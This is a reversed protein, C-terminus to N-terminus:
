IKFQITTLAGKGPGDSSIEITGDYSEIIARCSNLGLGM